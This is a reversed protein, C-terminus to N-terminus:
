KKQGLRFTRSNKLDIKKSFAPMEFTQNEADVKIFGLELFINIATLTTYTSYNKKATLNFKKVFDYIEFKDTKGRLIKLFKYVETLIERTPFVGQTPELYNVMCQIKKVGQWEDINPEYAIDFFENEVMSALNATDWSIARVNQADNLEAPIVFSLHNGEKGITKAQSGRIKRCALIPKPNGM